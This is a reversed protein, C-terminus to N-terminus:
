FHAAANAGVNSNMHGADEFIRSSVAVVKKLGIEPLRETKQNKGSDYHLYGRAKLEKVVFVVDFGKCVDQRFSEPLILFETEDTTTNVRKFGARNIITRAPSASVFMGGSTNANQNDILQFRSDGHMELFHRVQLIANESDTNGNSRTGLWAKFVIQCAEIAETENWGCIDRAMSGGFAVLAFRAAVRQVEGSADKPLVCEMFSQRFDVFGSKLYDLDASVNQLFERCAAGYFNRSNEQLQKAFLEAKTFEHLNEFLGLGSEADAPIDCMRVEQGGYIRAGTQAIVDSLSLEGSSLFLLNWTLSRRAAINRTMRGKGQGNALMYAAEAAQKPDCEKLEDLCLLSDNHLEAVAELGNATTRWTNLFGRRDDGGWVSGAVLLATSKGLSSAGRFHFGGGNESLPTLLCSAFATSVAFVLRSNGVCLRAINQRWEAATGKTQFQHEFGNASQFVIQSSSNITQGITTEPLVFLNQHWGIKDTCIRTEPPKSNALYLSIRERNKRSPVVELGRSVLYKIHENSDSHVLEIPMAWTHLRNQSDRWELWRGYNEGKETHTEATVELPSCIKHRQNSEDIFYVGDSKVEFQVASAAPTGSPPAGSNNATSGNAASNGIYATPQALGLWKSFSDALKKDTLEKVKPLGSATENNKLKKATDRVSTMRDSSQQDGAAFCVARIFKETEAESLGNRLLVGSVALSLDHRVSKKWYKSVACAAALLAVARRLEAAEVELPENEEFWAIQEGEEHVSPPFVTQGGTSRIEVLTEGVFVFKEVKPFDSLYLWHSRPKGARGFVAGTKPLFFDAIKVAEPSDLDIDTLGNSKSGLLVGINQPAGNFHKSLDAESMEFTQWGAFNPNKSRFAIPIPQWGRELYETAAGLLTKVNEPKPYLSPM